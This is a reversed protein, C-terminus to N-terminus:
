YKTAGGHHSIVDLLRNRMSDYLNEVKTQEIRGWAQHIAESLEIETSFQRGNEYVLRVLDSWLNEIINLDPSLAPWALVKIRQRRLWDLTFKSRHSPANDQQFIGGRGCIQRFHPVMHQRLMECYMASNMRGSVIALNPKGLYGIAGWVMVSGGGAVRRAKQRVPARSDIWEYDLSDPGDLNFKKEDSFVVKSWNRDLNNTAFELRARKHLPTLAPKREVKKWGFYESKQFIRQVTRVHKLSIQNDACIKKVSTRNNQTVSRLIQREQREDFVRPRGPSKKKGYDEPNKLYDRIVDRSRNIRHGIQTYNLGLDRYAMIKGIEESSLRKKRVMKLIPVQVIQFSDIVARFKLCM